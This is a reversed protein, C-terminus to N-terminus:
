IVEHVEELSRRPGKLYCRLETKLIARSRFIVARWALGVIMALRHVVWGRSGFWHRMYMEQSMVFRATRLKETPSSAGGIHMATVEPCVASSWGLRLARRQWDTEEAYMFFREDFRGVERLAEQRLLLCAGIVFFDRTFCLRSLALAYAISRLPSPFPWKVHQPHGHADVLLPSVAAVRENKSDHLWAQLGRIGEEAIVCDPNLLLVDCDRTVENSALALNVAAAFGINGPPCLVAAGCREAVNRVALDNGNDVVMIPFRRGLGTLCADLLSADRFSVVIICLDSM